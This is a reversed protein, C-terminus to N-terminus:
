RTRQALPEPAQAKDASADNLRYHALPRNLEGKARCKYLFGVVVEGEKPAPQSAFHQTAVQSLYNTAADADFFHPPCPIEDENTKAANVGYAAATEAASSEAANRKRSLSTTLPSAARGKRKRGNSSSGADQQSSDIPPYAQALDYFSIYSQVVESPLANFDVVPERDTDDHAKSRDKNKSDDNAVM